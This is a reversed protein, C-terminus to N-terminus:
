TPLRLCGGGPFDMVAPPERLTMGAQRPRRSGKRTNCSVCAPVINEKTYGGGQTVPLVHEQLLAKSSAGCYACTYSYASLIDSWEAETLTYLLQNRRAKYRAGRSGGGRWAANLSGLHSRRQKERYEVTRYVERKVESQHRRYNEDSWLCRSIEGTRAREAPDQYRRKQAESKRALKHPSDKKGVKAINHCKHSCYKRVTNWRLRSCTLEKYFEKGCVLCM